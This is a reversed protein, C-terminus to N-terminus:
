SFFKRKEGARGKKERGEGAREGERGKGRGEGKRERPFVMLSFHTYLLILTLM